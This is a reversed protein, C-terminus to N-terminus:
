LLSYPFGNMPAGSWEFLGSFIALHLVFVYEVVTIFLNHTAVTPLDHMKFRDNLAIGM